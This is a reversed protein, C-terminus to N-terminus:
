IFIIEKIKQQKGKHVNQKKKINLSICFIFSFYWLFMKKEQISTTSTFSLLDIIMLLIVHFDEFQSHLFSLHDYMISAGRMIDIQKM